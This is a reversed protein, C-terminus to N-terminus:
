VFPTFFKEFEVKHQIYKVSIISTSMKRSVFKWKLNTKKRTQFKGYVKYFM